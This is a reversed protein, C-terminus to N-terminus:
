WSGYGNREVADDETRFYMFCFVVISMRLWMKSVRHWNERRSAPCEWRCEQPSTSVRGNPQCHQEFRVAKLKWGQGSFGPGMVKLSMGHLEWSKYHKLNKLESQEDETKWLRCYKIGQNWEDNNDYHAPAELRALWSPTLWHWIWTWQDLWTRFAM